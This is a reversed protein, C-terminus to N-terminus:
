VCTFIKSNHVDLQLYTYCKDRRPSRAQTGIPFEDAVGYSDDVRQKVGRLLNPFFLSNVNM